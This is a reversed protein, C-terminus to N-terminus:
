NYYILHIKTYKLINDNNYLHEQKKKEKRKKLWSNM